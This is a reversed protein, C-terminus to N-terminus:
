GQCGVLGLTKGSADLQPSQITLAAGMPSVKGEGFKFGDRANYLTAATGNIQVVTMGPKCVTRPLGPVLAMELSIVTYLESWSAVGPPLVPQGDLRAGPMKSGYREVRAVWGKAHEVEGPAAAPALVPCKSANSSETSCLVSMLRKAEPRIGSALQAEGGPRSAGWQKLFQEAASRKIGTVPAWTAWLEASRLNAVSQVRTSWVAQYYQAAQRIPEKANALMPDGCPKSAAMARVQALRDAIMQQSAAGVLPKLEENTLELALRGLPDLVKCKNDIELHTANDVYIQDASQAAAPTSAILAALGTGTVSNKLLRACHKM